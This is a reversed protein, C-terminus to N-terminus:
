RHSIIKGLLILPVEALAFFAVLIEAPGLLITGVLAAAPVIRSCGKRTLALLGALFSVGLTCLGVYGVLGFDGSHAPIKNLTKLLILSVGCGLLCMWTWFSLPKSLDRRLLDFLKNAM